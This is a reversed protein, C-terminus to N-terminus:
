LDETKAKTAFEFSQQNGMNAKAHESSLQDQIEATAHWSNLQDKIEVKCADESSLKDKFKLNQINLVRKTKSKMLQDLNKINKIGKQM